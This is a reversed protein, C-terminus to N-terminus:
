CFSWPTRHGNREGIVIVIGLWRWKGIYVLTKNIVTGSNNDKSIDKTIHKNSTFAGAAKKPIQTSYFCSVHPLNHSNLISSKLCTSSSPSTRIRVLSQFLMPHLFIYIFFFYPNFFLFFGIKKKKKIHGFKFEAKLLPNKRLPCRNEMFGAVLDYSFISWTLHGCRCVRGCVVTIMYFPLM